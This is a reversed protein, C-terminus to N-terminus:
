YTTLEDEMEAIKAKLYAIRKGVEFDYEDNENCKAVGKFGSELIVVIAKGSQIIRSIDEGLEGTFVKPEEEKKEVYEIFYESVEDFKFVGLDSGFKINVMKKEFEVKTVDAISGKPFVKIGADLDDKLQLKMGVEINNIMKVGEEDKALGKIMEDTWGCHMEEIDYCFNNVNQITVVKGKFKEMSEIWMYGGYTYNIVLDDRIVVKDGVKYKSM